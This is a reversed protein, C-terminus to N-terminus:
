GRNKFSKTTCCYKKCVLPANEPFEILDNFFQDWEPSLIIDEVDNVNSINLHPQVLNEMGAFTPSDAWCCPFVYGTSSLTPEKREVESLCRPYLKVKLEAVQETTLIKLERIEDNM